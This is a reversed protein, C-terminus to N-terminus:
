KGYLLEGVRHRNMLRDDAQMINWLISGDRELRVVVLLNRSGSGTFAGIYQKRLGDGYATLWIEHPDQLTPLIYRAYRERAEDRKAVMHPLRDRHIVALDGDKTPVTVFARDDTIGVTEALIRVAEDATGAAALRGPDRFRVTEPIARWDPRGLERWTPQGPLVTQSGPTTQWLVSAQGPNYAWGPDIGRPVTIVEGTHPNTYEFTGHDPRRSLAGGHDRDLEGKSVSVVSCRCLWGNPPYHTSWWPDDAPLITGHWARHMPRTRSDLVAVYRWYPRAQLVAPDTMARYHGVQLATQINTQFITNLRHPSGLQVSEGRVQQRGWWGKAQLIPTLQKKFEQYTTGEALARDLEARIDQLIDTRMAKAVTFAKVHDEQWMEQWRFTTRFGKRRLSAIADEPPLPQLTIGPPVTPEPM